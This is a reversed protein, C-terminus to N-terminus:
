HCSAVHLIFYQDEPLVGSGIGSAGTLVEGGPLYWEFVVVHKAVPVVQVQHELVGASLARNGDYDFACLYGDAKVSPGSLDSDRLQPVKADGEGGCPM